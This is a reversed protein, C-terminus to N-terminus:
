FIEGEALDSVNTEVRPRDADAGDDNAAPADHDNLIKMAAGYWEGGLAQEGGGSGDRDECERVFNRLDEISRVMRKTSDPVMMESEGLVERFKKVDYPDRGSQVMEDLEAKNEEVESKYYACEKILRSIRPM